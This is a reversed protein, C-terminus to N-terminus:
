AQAIGTFTVGMLMTLQDWGSVACTLRLSSCMPGGYSENGARSIGSSPTDGQSVRAKLSPFIGAILHGNLLQQELRPSCM